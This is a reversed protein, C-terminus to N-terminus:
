KRKIKADWEIEAANVSVCVNRTFLGKAWQLMFIEHVKGM